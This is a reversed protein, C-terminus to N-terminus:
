AEKASATPGVWRRGDWFEASEQEEEPVSSVYTFKRLVLTGALLDHLAQKRPTFAAMVWGTMLLITSLGKLWFRASARFFSIPDGHVDAVYIGLAVKGITAQAPSSEFISYYAWTIAWSVLVVNSLREAIAIIDWALTLSQARSGAPLAFSFNPPLLVLAGVLILMQVTGLLLGDILYALARRWFGAFDVGTRAVPAFVSSTVMESMGLDRHAAPRASAARLGAPM